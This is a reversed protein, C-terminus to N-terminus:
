LYTKGNSMTPHGLAPLATPRSREAEQQRKEDWGKMRRERKKWGRGERQGKERLNWLNLRMAQNTRKQAGTQIM